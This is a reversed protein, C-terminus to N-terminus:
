QLIRTPHNRNCFYKKREIGVRYTYPFNKKTNPKNNGIFFPPKPNLPTSVAPVALFPLVTVAAEKYRIKLLLLLLAIHKASGDFGDPLSDGKFEVGRKRCGSCNLDKQPHSGSVSHLVVFGCLQVLIIRHLANASGSKWCSALHVLSNRKSFRVFRLSM